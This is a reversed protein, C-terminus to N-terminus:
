FIKSSFEHKSNPRIKLKTKKRYAASESSPFINPPVLEITSQFKYEVVQNIRSLSSSIKSIKSKISLSEKLSIKMVLGDHDAV